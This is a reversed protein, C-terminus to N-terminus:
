YGQEDVDWGLFRKLLSKPLWRSALLMKLEHDDAHPHMQRIHHLQTERAFNNMAEVQRLKEAPSMARYREAQIRLVAPDVDHPFPRVIM